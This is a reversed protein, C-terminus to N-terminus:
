PLLRKAVHRGDQGGDQIKLFIINEAFNCGIKKFVTSLM